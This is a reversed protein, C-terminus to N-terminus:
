EVTLARAEGIFSRFTEKLDEATRHELNGQKALRRVLDDKAAANAVTVLRWAVSGAGSRPWTSAGSGAGSGTTAAARRARAAAVVKKLSTIKKTM